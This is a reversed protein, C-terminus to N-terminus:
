ILEVQPPFTQVYGARMLADFNEDAMNHFLPLARIEPFTKIPM